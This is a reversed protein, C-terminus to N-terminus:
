AVNESRERMSPHGSSEADDMIDSSKLESFCHFAQSAAEGFAFKVM